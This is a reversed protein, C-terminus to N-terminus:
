PAPPNARRHGRARPLAPAARMRAGTGCLARPVRGCLGARWPRSRRSGCATAARRELPALHKDGPSGPLRAEPHCDQWPWATNAPVPPTLWPAHGRRAPARLADRDRASAHTRRRPGTQKAHGFLCPITKRRRSIGRRSGGGETGSSPREDRSTSSGQLRSFGPQGYFHDSSHGWSDPVRRKPAWRRLLPCQLPGLEDLSTGHAPNSLTRTVTTAGVRWLPGWSAPELSNPDSSHGWSRAYTGRAGYSDKPMRRRPRCGRLAAPATPAYGAPASSGRRPSPQGLGLHGAAALTRWRALGRRGRGGQASSMGRPERRGDGCPCRPWPLFRLLCAADHGM